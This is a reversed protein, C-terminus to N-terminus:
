EDTKNTVRIEITEIPDKVGKLTKVMGLLANKMFQEPFESLPVKKYNIHLEVQKQKAM